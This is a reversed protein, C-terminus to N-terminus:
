ADSPVRITCSAFASLCNFCAPQLNAFTFEMRLMTNLKRRGEESIEMDVARSHRTTPLAPSAAGLSPGRGTPPPDVFEPMRRDVDELFRQLIESTLQPPM